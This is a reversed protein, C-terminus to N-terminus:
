IAACVPMYKFIQWWLWYKICVNPCAISASQAHVTFCINICNAPRTLSLKITLSTMIWVRGASNWGHSAVKYSRFLHCALSFNTSLTSPVLTFFLTKLLTAFLVGRHITEGESKCGFLDGLLTFNVLGVNILVIPLDSLRLWLDKKWM